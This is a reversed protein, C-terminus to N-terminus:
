AERAYHTLLHDIAGPRDRELGRLGQNLQRVLSQRSLKHKDALVDYFDLDERELWMNPKVPDRFAKGRKRVAENSM